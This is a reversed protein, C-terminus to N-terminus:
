KRNQDASKDCTKRHHIFTFCPKPIKLLPLGDVCKVEQEGNQRRAYLIQLRPLIWCAVCITRKLLKGKLECQNCELCSNTCHFLLNYQCQQLQSGFLLCWRTTLATVLSFIVVTVLNHFSNLCYSGM